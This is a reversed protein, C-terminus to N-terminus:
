RRKLKYQKPVEIEVAKELEDFHAIIVYISAKFTKKDIAVPQYGYYVTDPSKSDCQSIVWKDELELINYIVWTDGYNEKFYQLAVECARLLDDM